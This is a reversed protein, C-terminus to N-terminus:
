PSVPVAPSALVLWQLLTGDLSFHKDSLLSKVEPAAMLKELFRGMVQENLLSDRTTTFTTPHWIPDDPGLGVLWGSLIWRFL